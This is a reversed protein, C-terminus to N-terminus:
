SKEVILQNEAARLEDSIGTTARSRRIKLVLPLDFAYDIDFLFQIHSLWDFLLVEESVVIALDDGFYRFLCRRVLLLNLHNSTSHLELACRRAWRVLM